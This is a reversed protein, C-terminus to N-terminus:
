FYRPTVVKKNPLHFIYNVMIEHSSANLATHTLDISYGIQMQPTVQLAILADVSDLSRYSVGLWVREKILANMNLDVQVPANGVAKFLVNPKLLINPGAEFVYGATGYYHRVLRAFTGDNDQSDIDQNMLQPVSFGIYLRETHLLVGTGFNWKFESINGLNDGPDGLGNDRGYDIRYNHTSAQLGMSLKLKENLSIRYAYSFYGGVETSLGIQDRFIAAGLSVPRHNLPSHVTFLQTSPAGDINTWQERMLFSTSLGDHVGAYAPNLVLGNYMYHTIMFQQQAFAAFGLMGFGILIIIRKM